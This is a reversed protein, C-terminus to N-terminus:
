GGFGGRRGGGSSMRGGFGGRSIVSSRTRVKQPRAVDPPDFARTSVRTRGTMYDTEIRRGGATYHGGDRWDRYYGRGRWGGGDLMQGVIFGTMLPGWFSGGNAQRPVCQGPGYVEECTKQDPQNAVKAGDEAASKQATQCADDPVENKDLCEQLSTYAYADTSKGPNDIQVNSWDNGGDGCATLSVGGAAMLSTLALKRSRKM